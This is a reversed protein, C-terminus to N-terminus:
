RCSHKSLGPDGFVVTCVPIYVIDKRSCFIDHVDLMEEKGDGRRSNKNPSSKVFDRGIVWSQPFKKGVKEASASVEWRM